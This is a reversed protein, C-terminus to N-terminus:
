ALVSQTEELRRLFQRDSLQELVPRARDLHARDGTRQALTIRMRAAHPLLNHAEAEDIAVALRADDGSALAQAIEACRTFWDIPRKEAQRSALALLDTSPTFGRENLFAVGCFLFYPHEDVDGIYAPSALLRGDDHRYADVLRQLKRLAAGNFRQLAAVARDTVARDERALGMHLSALLAGDVDDDELTYLQMGDYVVDVLAASESWRGILFAAFASWGSVRQLYMPPTQAVTTDLAQHALAIASDYDGHDFYARALMALADGREFNSLQSM